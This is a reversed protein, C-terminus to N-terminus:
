EGMMVNVYSIVIREDDDDDDTAAIDNNDDDDVEEKSIWEFLRAWCVMKFSSICEYWKYM